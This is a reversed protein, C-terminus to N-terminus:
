PFSVFVTIHYKYDTLCAKCYFCAPACIGPRNGSEAPTHAAGSSRKAFTPLCGHCEATNQSLAPRRRRGSLAAGHIKVVLAIGAVPEEDLAHIEVVRAARIGAVIGLRCVEEQPGRVFIVRPGLIIETM